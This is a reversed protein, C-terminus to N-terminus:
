FNYFVSGLIQHYSNSYDSGTTDVRETDVYMWEAGVKIAPTISYWTNLYTQLNQSFESDGMANRTGSVKWDDEEPDDIGVGATISWTPM